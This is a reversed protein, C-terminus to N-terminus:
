GTRGFDDTDRRYDLKVTSVFDLKIVSPVSCVGSEVNNHAVRPRPPVNDSPQTRTAARRLAYQSRLQAANVCPYL